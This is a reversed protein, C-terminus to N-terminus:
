RQARVTYRRIAVSKTLREGRRDLLVQTSTGQYKDVLESFHEESRPRDDGLQLIIDGVLIDADFAPTDDVVLTVRVGFNSQLRSRTSDELASYYVGFRSEIKVLYVASFDARQISYPILATQTATTVSQGTASGTVVGGPGSAVGSASATTTSTSPITLPAVGTLTHTYGSSVLVIQAGVRKAHAHVADPSVSSAGANFASQGVVAYGRRLLHPVDRNFDTSSYIQPPASTEIYGPLVRATPQGQYFQTYPNPACAALALLAGSLHTIRM